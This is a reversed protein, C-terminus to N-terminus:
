LGINQSSTRWDLIVVYFSSYSSSLSTSTGDSKNWGNISTSISSGEEDSPSVNTSIVTDQNWDIIQLQITLAGAEIKNGDGIQILYLNNRTVNLFDETDRDQFYIYVLGKSGTNYDEITYSIAIVPSTETSSVSQENLYLVHERTNVDKSAEEYEEDTYGELLDEEFSDDYGQPVYTSVTSTTSGYKDSGSYYTDYYTSYAYLTIYSAKDPSSQDGQDFIYASNPTNMVYVGTVKLNPVFNFVDVRAMTRILEAEVNTGLSTLTVAENDSSDVAMASMPYGTSNDSEPYGVLVDVHQNESATTSYLVTKFDSLTTTGATPATAPKDNGILATKVTEGILKTVDITCTYSGTGTDTLLTTSEDVSEEDTTFPYSSYFIYDDDTADDEDVSSDLTFLYVNLTVLKKENATQYERSVVIDDNTGTKVTITLTAQVEEDTTVTTNTEIGEESDDGVITDTESCSTGAMSMMVALMSLYIFNRKM